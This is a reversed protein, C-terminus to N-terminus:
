ARQAALSAVLQQYLNKERASLLSSNHWLLVFNGGFLACLQSLELIEKLAVEVPLSMYDLLTTEMATLPQERLKLAKGNKLNFAPYDYCTGCRFGTHDAYALTSDYDLGADEWIQWTVPNEWRLYHQRGGWASQSVGEEAAVQLLAAFEERIRVPDRFTNFSPHLGLEHGRLHIRRVLGRIWKEPLSYNGDIAGGSRGAIFNFSSQLGHRESVDMLFDFNNGLDAALDGAKVRLYSNVRSICLAPNKRRLLDGAASKIIEALTQNSTCYPWDVDHSLYLQFKREKRQLGPWLRSVAWWFIEVYENVLPRKLFGERFALSARAPFRELDDRERTVMEEYRTLMFFASGFIDLGLTIRSGEIRCFINDALTEGFVVPVLGAAMKVKRSTASIDWKKLPEPPLSSPKLWEDAPTHFLIDPLIIEGPLHDDALTIRLDRREEVRATYKLGLFEGLLVDFIYAREASYLPPHYIYLMPM